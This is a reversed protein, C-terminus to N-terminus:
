HGKMMIAVIIGGMGTILIGAAWMVITEIRDMRSLIQGWREACVAEHTQIRTM